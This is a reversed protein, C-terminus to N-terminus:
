FDWALTHRPSATIEIPDAETAPTLPRPELTAKVSAGQSEQQSQWVAPSHFTDIIRYGKAQKQKVLKQLEHHNGKSHKHQNIQGTKGWYRHFTGGGTLCGVWDKGGSRSPSRLHFGILTDTPLPHSM